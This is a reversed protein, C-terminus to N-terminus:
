RREDRGAQRVARKMRSVDNGLVADVGLEALRKTREEYDDTLFSCHVAKGFSKIRAAMEATVAPSVSVADHGHLVANQLVAEYTEPGPAGDNQTRADREAAKVANIAELKGFFTTRRILGRAKVLELAPLADGAPCKIHLILEVGADGFEDLADILAPVKADERGAFADGMWAGADLHRVEQEFRLRDVAGSGNTTRDVTEDHMLVYMGDATRRVDMEIGDAGERVAERLSLMTNEPFAAPLGRHGQIRIM